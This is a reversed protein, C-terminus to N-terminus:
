KPPISVLLGLVRRVGHEDPRPALWLRHSAAFAAREEDDPLDYMEAELERLEPALPFLVARRLDSVHQVLGPRQGLRVAANQIDVHSLLARGSDMCALERPTIGYLLHATAPTHKPGGSLDFHVALDTFSKPPVERSM